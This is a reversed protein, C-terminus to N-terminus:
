YIILFNLLHFPNSFRYQKNLPRNITCSSHFLDWLDRSKSFCSCGVCLLIFSRVIFFLWRFSLSNNMCSMHHHFFFAYYLLLNFPFFFSKARRAETRNKSKTQIKVIKRQTPCNPGMAPTECYHVLSNSNLQNTSRKCSTAHTNTHTCSHHRANITLVFSFIFGFYAAEM